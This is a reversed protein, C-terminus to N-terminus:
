DISKRFIAKKSKYWYFISMILLKAINQLNYFSIPHVSKLYYKWTLFYYHLGSKNKIIQQILELANIYNGFNREKEKLDIVSIPLKHQWKKHFKFVM